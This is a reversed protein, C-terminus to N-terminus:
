ISEMKKQLEKEFTIVEELCKNLAEYVSEKSLDGSIFHNETRYPVKWEWNHKHNTECISMIKEMMQQHDEPAGKSSLALQIYIKDVSRNHIEYYYNNTTNWGSKVGEIDPLLVSMFQTKNRIYTKNSHLLDEKLYETDTAWQRAYEAIQILKKDKESQQISYLDYLYPLMAECIKDSWESHFDAMTSWSDKNALSVNKLSYSMWSAKKDNARDWSLCAGLTKEIEEKHSYLLDFAEKNKEKDSSGLYFDIRAEDFNAVCSVSFGSIGFYGWTANNVTPSCNRFSDRYGKNNAEKIKPLAYEWYEKRLQYREVDSLDHNDDSEDKLFFLLSNESVGYLAFLKTLRSIKTSNNGHKELFLGPEIEVPDRLLSSSNSVFICEPDEALKTLISKDNNHLMRVVREYMDIWSEVPQENGLYSFKAIQRGTFDFEDDLGVVDMEKVPAVYDTNPYQWIKVAEKALETNREKLEDLGWKEKQAIRQNMKLGSQLFGNEMTKKNHFTENSYKSNYATLTLNALRHLWTEHIEAYDDGLSKIWSDTLHQPMIHEISYTGDEIHKYIDKDEKTGSNEFREFIYAKNKAQMNYINKIQLNEVFDKDDPCRGSEKKNSLVYKYKKAYDNTTGDLRIIDKNMTLFIKNLANTPLGCILRRFIYSETDTFISEVDEITLQGKEKLSLVELLFPRVVSTELKNLRIICGSITKNGPMGNLLTKYHKSYELFDPLIIESELEKEEAYEKFAPYIRNLSPITNTKISLYDRCFLDLNEGTNKEVKNWYDKYLTTQQVPKKNMLVYNRIKDAEDLDKGTSNLSEFILQANDEANLKLNIIILKGIADLLEDATLEKLLIRNYFYNYNITLNSNTIFEDSNGFLRHYAERDDAVPEIKYKRDSSDYSDILYENMIKEQINNTASVVKGEVLLHYLALLLVSVTTLRQQGDIIVREEKYGDPNYESVVSGFFHNPRGKKIVKVLDDYLQKCNDQRWDYKRQYVPIAFRKDAGSMFGLLKEANGNM